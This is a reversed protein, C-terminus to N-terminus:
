QRQKYELEKFMHPTLLPETVITKPNNRPTKQEKNKQRHPSTTSTSPSMATHPQDQHKGANTKTSPSPPQTLTINFQYIM